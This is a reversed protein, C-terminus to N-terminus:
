PYERTLNLLGLCLRCAQEPHATEALCDSIWQLTDGGVGAAWSKLWGPIQREPMHAATTSNGPRPRRPHTALRMMVLLWGNLVQPLIKTSSVIATAAASRDM